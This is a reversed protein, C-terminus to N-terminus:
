NSGKGEVLVPARRFVIDAGMFFDHWINTNVGLGLYHLKPTMELLDHAPVRWKALVRMGGADRFAKVVAVTPKKNDRFTLVGIAKGHLTDGRLTLESLSDLSFVIDPFQQTQMVQHMLLDRMSEGTVFNEGKVMVTGLTGRWHVTDPAVVEGRVAEICSPYVRTRPFLPVRVTDDVNAYGYSPLKLKPNIYWGSSRGEGPRWSSDGPCTTGWLHNLNPSMQWWALSSKADVTWRAQGHAAAPGALMLCGLLATYRSM